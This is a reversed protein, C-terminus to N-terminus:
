QDPSSRRRRKLAALALGAGILVMTGPEPASSFPDEDMDLLGFSSRPPQDTGPDDGPPAWTANAVEFTLQYLGDNPFWFSWSDWPYNPYDTAMFDVTETWLLTSTGTTLNKIWLNAYDPNNDFAELAAHGRIMGNVGGTFTDSEAITSMGQDGPVLVMFNSSGNPAAYDPDPTVIDPIAPQSSVVYGGPVPQEFTPGVTAGFPPSSENAPDSLPWNNNTAPVVTWGPGIPAGVPDTVPEEFGFNTLAAWAAGPVLGTGALLALVMVLGIYRM